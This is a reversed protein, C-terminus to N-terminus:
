WDPFQYLSTALGLSVLLLATYIVDWPTVSSLTSRVGTAVVSVRTPLFTSGDVFGICYLIVLSPMILLASCYPLGWGALLEVLAEPLVFLLLRVWWPRPCVVFSVPRRGYLTRLTKIIFDDVNAPPSSV